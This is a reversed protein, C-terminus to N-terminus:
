RSYSPNLGIILGNRINYKGQEIYKKERVLDGLTFYNFRPNTKKLEEAKKQPLIRYLAEKTGWGRELVYGVVPKSGNKSCEKIQRICYKINEVHSLVSFRKIPLEIRIIPLEIRIIEKETKQELDETM